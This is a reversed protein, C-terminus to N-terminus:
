QAHINQVPKSADWCMQLRVATAHDGDAHEVAHVAPVLQEDAGGHVPRALTAHRAHHHREVRVRHANEGGITSGDGQEGNLLTGALDRLKAHVVEQDDVEALLQCAVAGLVVDGFHQLPPEAGELYDHAFVEGKALVGGAGCLRHRLQALAM